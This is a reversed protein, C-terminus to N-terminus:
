INKFLDFMWLVRHPLTDVIGTEHRVDFFHRESIKLTDKFLNWLKFVTELGLTWSPLIHLVFPPLFLFMGYVFVLFWSSHTLWIPCTSLPYNNLPLTWWLNTNWTSCKRRIFFIWNVHTLEYIKTFVTNGGITAAAVIRKQIWRTLFSNLNENGKYVSFKFLKRM